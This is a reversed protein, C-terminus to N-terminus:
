GIKIVLGEDRQNLLPEVAGAPDPAGAATPGVIEEGFAEIRLINLVQYRLGPRAACLLAHM